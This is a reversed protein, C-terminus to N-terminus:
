NCLFRFHLNSWLSVYLISGYAFEAKDENHIEEDDLLQHGIFDCINSPVAAGM